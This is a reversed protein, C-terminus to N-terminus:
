VTDTMLIQSNFDVKEMHATETDRSGLLRCISRPMMYMYVAFSHGAESIYMESDYGRFHLASGVDLNAYFWNGFLNDLDHRGVVAYVAIDKKESMRIVSPWVIGPRKAAPSTM